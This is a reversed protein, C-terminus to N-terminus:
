KLPHPLPATSIPSSKSKSKFFNLLNKQFDRLTCDIITKANYKIIDRRYLAHDQTTVALTQLTVNAKIVSLATGNQCFIMPIPM